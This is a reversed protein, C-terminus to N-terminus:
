LQKIISTYWYGSFFDTQMTDNNDKNEILKNLDDHSMAIFLSPNDVCTM